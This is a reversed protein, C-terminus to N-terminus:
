QQLKKAEAAAIREKAAMYEDLWEASPPFKFKRQPKPPEPKPGYKLEEHWEFLAKLGKHFSPEYLVERSEGTRGAMEDGEGIVRSGDV